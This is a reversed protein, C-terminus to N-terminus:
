PQPERCFASESTLLSMSVNMFLTTGSTQEGNKLQRQHCQVSHIPNHCNALCSTNAFNKSFPDGYRLDGASTM